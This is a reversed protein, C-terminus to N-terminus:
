YPKPMESLQVNGTNSHMYVYNLGSGRNVGLQGQLPLSRTQTPTPKCRTRSEPGGIIEVIQSGKGSSVSYNANIGDGNVEAKINGLNSRVDLSAFDAFDGTPSGGAGIIAIDGRDTTIKLLPLSYNRPPYPWVLSSTDAPPTPAGMFDFTVSVKGAAVTSVIARNIFTSAMNISGGGNSTIYTENGYAELFNSLVIDGTGSTMTCTSSFLVAANAVVIRGRDTSMYLASGGLAATHAIRGDGTATYRVDGCVATGCVHIRTSVVTNSHITGSTTVSIGSGTVREMFVEGTQSTVVLDPAMSIDPYDSPVPIKPSNGELLVKSLSVPALSTTVKLSAFAARANAIDNNLDDFNGNVNVLVTKSAVTYAVNFATTEIVLAAGLCKATADVGSPPALAISTEAYYLPDDDLSVAGSAAGTQNLSALFYEYSPLESAAAAYFTVFVTLQSFFPPPSM